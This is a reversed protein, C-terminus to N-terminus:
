TIFSACLSVSETPLRAGSDINKQKDDVKKNHLNEFMCFQPCNDTFEQTGM